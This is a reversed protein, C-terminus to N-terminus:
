LVYMCFFVLKYFSCSFLKKSSSSECFNNLILLTSVLYSHYPTSDTFYDYPYRKTWIDQAMNFNVYLLGYTSPYVSPHISPYISPYISPHISPHISPYISLHVSPYISVHISSLHISPYIYILLQHCHTSKIM